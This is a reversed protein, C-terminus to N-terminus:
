AKPTSDLSKKNAENQHHKERAQACYLALGHSVTESTMIEFVLPLSIAQEDAESGPGLGSSNILVAPGQHQKGQRHQTFSSERGPHVPVSGALGDDEAIASELSVPRSSRGAAGGM